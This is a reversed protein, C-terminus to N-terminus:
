VVLTEANNLADVKRIPVGNFFLVKSILGNGRTVNDMSLLANAKNFLQKNLASLVSRNMYFAARGNSLNPILQCADLMHLMLDASSDATTGATLLASIDINCIRVAYRWDKVHLGCDWEYHTRYGEWRGGDSAQITVQGKNEMILGAKSGKPFIGHIADGWVVLWVSANDDGTGGAKIINSGSKTTDTSYVSYRHSLGMIKEPDTSTDGYFLATALAQSMGEIHAKDESARFDSTNGNLDALKKDVESYAELMGCTDTVQTTTSKSPQVSGYLKRWTPEPIGVRITGVHGTALNGQKWVCDDLIENTQNMVEAIASISGDPDLRKTVDVLTPYITTNEAM